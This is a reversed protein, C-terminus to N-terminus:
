KKEGAKPSLWERTVAEASPGFTRSIFKAVRRRRILGYRDDFRPEATGERGPAAPNATRRGSARLCVPYRRRALPSLRRPDQWAMAEGAVLAVVARPDPIRDYIM